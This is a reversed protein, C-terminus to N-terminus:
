LKNLRTILNEIYIKVFKDSDDNNCNLESMDFLLIKEIESISLLKEGYQNKNFRILLKEM